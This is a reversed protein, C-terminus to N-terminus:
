PLPAPLGAPTGRTAYRTWEPPQPSREWRSISSQTVGWHHALELQSYGIHTRWDRLAQGTWPQQDTTAPRPM